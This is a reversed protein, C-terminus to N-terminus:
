SGIMRRLRSAPWARVLAPAASILVMSAAVVAVRLLRLPAPRVFPPIFALLATHTATAFLLMIGALRVRRDAPGDAIPGWVRAWGAAVTSRRAANRIAESIGRLLRAVNSSSVVRAVDRFEDTSM